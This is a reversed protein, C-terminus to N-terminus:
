EEEEKTMTRKRNKRKKKRKKKRKRRRQQQLSFFCLSCVSFAFLFLQLSLVEPKMEERSSLIRLARGAAREGSGCNSSGGSTKIHGTPAFIQWEQLLVTTSVNRYAMHRHWGAASRKFSHSCSDLLWCHVEVIGHLRGIQTSASIRATRASRRGLM